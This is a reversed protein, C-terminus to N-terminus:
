ALALLEQHVGRDGFVAPVYEPVARSSKVMALSLPLRQVSMLISAKSLVPVGIRWREM